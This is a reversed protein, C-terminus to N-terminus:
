GQPTAKRNPASKKRLRNLWQPADLGLDGGISAIITGDGDRIPAALCRVEKEFEADDRVFGELL